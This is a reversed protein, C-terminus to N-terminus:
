DVLTHCTVGALTQSGVSKSSNPSSYWQLLMDSIGYMCV